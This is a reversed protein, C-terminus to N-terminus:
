HEILKKLEKMDAIFTNNNKISFFGCKCSGIKSEFLCGAESECSQQRKYLEKKQMLM